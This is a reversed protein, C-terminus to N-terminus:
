PIGKLLERIRKLSNMKIIKRNEKVFGDESNNKIIRENEKVFGDELNAPSPQMAKQFRREFISNGRIVVYAGYCLM